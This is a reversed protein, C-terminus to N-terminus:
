AAHSSTQVRESEGLGLNGIEHMARSQLGYADQLRHYKDLVKTLMAMNESLNKGFNEPHWWLHFTGGTTAAAEMAKAIRRLRLGDLPALRRNYPRLFRSSAVNTLQGPGSRAPQSVNAGSLEIYSDVLRCLRRAKTQKKGPAPAYFWKAENGRYHTLGHLRCAELAEAGYQNRPFVISKCKIGWEGLQTVAMAVDASFAQTTVGPELACCHSFTHTGLEQGPCSMIMRALSAGYHYPDCREDPGIEELRPIAATDLGAREARALLEGKSECLLAGVTAWTARINRRHILDLMAPIARRGGLVNPGYGDCTAHDRVGWMLEYDLSIVLNGASTSAPRM